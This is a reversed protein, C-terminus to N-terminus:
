NGAELIEHAIVLFFILYIRFASRVTAIVLHRHLANLTMTYAYMMSYRAIHRVAAM